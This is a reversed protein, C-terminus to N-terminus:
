SCTTIMLLNGTLFLNLQYLIVIISEKQETIADIVNQCEVTVNLVLTTGNVQLTVNSRDPAVTANIGFLEPLMGYLQPTYIGNILFSPATTSCTISTLAHKVTVVTTIYSEQLTPMVETKKGADMFEM